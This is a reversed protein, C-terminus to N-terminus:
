LGIQRGAGPRGQGRPSEEIEVPLSLRDGAYTVELMYRAPQVVDFDLPAYERDATAPRRQGTAPDHLSGAVGHTIVKGQVLVGSLEIKVGQRTGTLVLQLSQDKDPWPIELRNPVGAEPSVPAPLPTWALPAALTVPQLTANEVKLRISQSLQWTYQSSGAAQAGAPLRQWFAAASPGAKVRAWIGADTKLFSLDFRSQASAVEETSALAERISLYQELCADCQLLHQSVIQADAADLLDPREAALEAYWGLTEDSLHLQEPTESWISNVLRELQAPTLRRAPNLNDGTM